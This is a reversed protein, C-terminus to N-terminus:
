WDVTQMNLVSALTLGFYIEMYLRILGNWFLYNKLFNIIKIMCKCKLKISVLYLVFYIVIFILHGLVIYLPFGMNLLFHQSEVGCEQFNLNYPEEEPFYFLKQNIKQSDFLEFNAIDVLVKNIQM